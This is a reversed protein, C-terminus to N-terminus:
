VGRKVAAIGAAALALVFAALALPSLAPVPIGGLLNCYGDVDWIVQQPLGNGALSIFQIRIPNQTAATLYPAVGTNAPIVTGTPNSSDEQYLVVGAGDTVVIQYAENGLGTNDRDFVFETWTVQFSDCGASYATIQGGTVALSSQAMLSLGAVLGALVALSSRRM